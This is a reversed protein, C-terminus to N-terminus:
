FFPKPLTVLFVAAVALIVGGVAILGIRAARVRFHGSIGCWSSCPPWSSPPASTTTPTAATPWGRPTTPTPGPTTPPPRPRGPQVYQPMYTPGKPANPNTFPDTALWARFAVDFPPRFRREAVAMGAQNGSLYASFWANFSLGDFNKTSLGQLQARSALARETNAKALKLSSETGWKASAFGSYAALVAVM